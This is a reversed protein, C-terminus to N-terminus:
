RNSPGRRPRFREASHSESMGMTLPPFTAKVLEIDGNTIRSKYESGHFATTGGVILGWLVAAVLSSGLVLGMKRRRAKRIRERDGGLLVRNWVRNWIPWTLVLVWLWMFFIEVGTTSALVPWSKEAELPVTGRQTKSIRYDDRAAQAETAAEGAIRQAEATQGGIAAEVARELKDGIAALPAERDEPLYVRLGDASNQFAALEDRLASEWTRDKNDDALAATFDAANTQTLELVGRAFSLQNRNHDGYSKYDIGEIYYPRDNAIFPAYVASGYLLALLAIAIKVLPRRGVQEFVNDWYDKSYVAADALPDLQENSAGESVSKSPESM